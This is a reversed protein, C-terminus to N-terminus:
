KLNYQLNSREKLIYDLRPFILSLKKELNQLTVFYTAAQSTDNLASLNSRATLSAAQCAAIALSAANAADTIASLLGKEVVRLALAAVEASMEAVTVPICITAIIKVQIVRTSEMQHKPKGKAMRQAAILEDYAESDKDAHDILLRQLANARDSIVSMEENVPSYKEKMMTLGAVKTVLSAAVAGTHAAAAGGAPVSQISALRTIFDDHIDSVFEQNATEEFVRQELIQSPSLGDLQLYVGAVDTIAKIPILGVLENHHIGTGFRAAEKRITEVVLPIPTQHFNTLNMSVQARGDVMLGIAKVYKLGGSSFRVTKAISRAISIDQTDLFVNFAILPQRAGIVTAGAPGMKMPGFDPRRDQNTAIESKLVEYQGRRINELNRRDERTAAEEYLYVPIGLERGVRQGLHVAIDVCEHMTIDKIPVFPVVDTAGVRPHVGQQFNLDILLSATKIAQFAAEEVDFPAGIFTIVTRNHDLDSHRDLISVGRVARIAKLISEIVEPRRAESFNPICEVIKSLM